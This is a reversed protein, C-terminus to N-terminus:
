ARGGSLRDETKHLGPQDCEDFTALLIANFHNARIGDDTQELGIHQDVMANALYPLKHQFKFTDGTTVKKV